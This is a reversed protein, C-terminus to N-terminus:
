WIFTHLMCNNYIEADHINNYSNIVSNYSKGLEWILTSEPFALTLKDLIKPRMSDLSINYMKTLALMKDNFGITLSRRKTIDVMCLITFTAKTKGILAREIIGKYIMNYADNMIKNYVANKQTTYMGRLQYNHYIESNGCIMSILTIFAFIIITNIM